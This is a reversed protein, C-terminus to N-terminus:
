VFLYGESFRRRLRVSLVDEHGEPRDLGPTPALIRIGRM